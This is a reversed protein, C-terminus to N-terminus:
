DAKENEKKEEGLFSNEFINGQIEVKDFQELFNYDGECNYCHCCIKEKTPFDYTAWQWGLSNECWMVVQLDEDFDGEYIEKGNKDCRGTFETLIYNQTVEGINPHGIIEGNLTISISMEILSKGRTFFQKREKDWARFKIQKSM